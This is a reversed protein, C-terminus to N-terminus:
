FGVSFGARIVPNNYPSDLTENLNWLVLLYLFANDAIPERYGAGILYSQFDLASPTAQSTPNKIKYTLYEYEVHAFISPLILARGFISGGFVNTKLDSSQGFYNRYAYYKYTPSIGVGIRSTIKYGILPSIDVLTMSGFQLGLSGGYFLHESLPPKVTEKLKIKDQAEVNQSFSLYLFAGLLSYTLYSTRSISM